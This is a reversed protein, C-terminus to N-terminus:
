LTLSTDGGGGEGWQPMPSVQLPFATTEFLLAPEAFFDGKQKVVIRRRDNVEVTGSKIFYMGESEKTKIISQKKSYVQQELSLTVLHLFAEECPSFLYSSLVTTEM